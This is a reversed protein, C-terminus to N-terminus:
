KLDLSPSITATIGVYRRASQLIAAGDHFLWLRTAYWDIRFERAEGALGQPRDEFIDLMLVHLLEHVCTNVSLFPAQHGHAHDMAIMCLPYGRYRTAVGSLTRGQDWEMPIRNTIALNIAGRELGRVVPERGQPRWIGGTSVSTQFQIGCRAFDLVAEPWLRQRFREIQGPQWRADGDILHHVPVTLPRRPVSAYASAGAAGLLLQRRTM